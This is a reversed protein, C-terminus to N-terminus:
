LIGQMCTKQENHYSTIYWKGCCDLLGQSHERKPLGAIRAYGIEQPKCGKNEAEEVAELYVNTDKKAGM